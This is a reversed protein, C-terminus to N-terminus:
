WHYGLVIGYQTGGSDVGVSGPSPDGPTLPKLALDASADSYRIDVGVNFRRLTYVFGGNLWFGIDSDSDDLLTFSFEPGPDFMADAKLQGDLQAYALGGGVYPRLKEGWFKRVGVDLELIDVDVKYKVTYTYGPYQYVFTESNDDSSSLLDIALAVPWDFDLSVVVGFQDPEDVELDELDDDSISRQGFFVNVDGGAMAPTVLFVFSLAVLVLLHRDVVMM